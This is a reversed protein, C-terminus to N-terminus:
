GTFAVICNAVPKAQFARQVDAWLPLVEAARPALRALWSPPLPVAQMTVLTLGALILPVVCTSRWAADNRLYQRVIWAWATAVALVTLVLQGLAHRGGMLLPVLFIVGALGGDVVQLLFRDLVQKGRLVM